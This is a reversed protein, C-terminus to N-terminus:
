KHEDITFIIRLLSFKGPFMVTRSNLAARRIYRGRDVTKQGFINM